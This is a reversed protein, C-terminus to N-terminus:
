EVTSTMLCACMDCLATENETEDGLPRDYETKMLDFLSIHAANYNLM